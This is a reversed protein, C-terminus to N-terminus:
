NMHLPEVSEFTKFHYSPLYLGRAERAGPDTGMPGKLLGNM